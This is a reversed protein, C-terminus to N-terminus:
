ITSLYLYILQFYNKLIYCNSNSNVRVQSTISLYILITTNNIFCILFTLVFLTWLRSGHGGTSYYLFRFSDDYSGYRSFISIPGFTSLTTSLFSYQLYFRNEKKLVNEYMNVASHKKSISFEM